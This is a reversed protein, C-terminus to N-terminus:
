LNEIPDRAAADYLPFHHVHARATPNLEVIATVSSRNIYPNTPVSNINLPENGPIRQLNVKLLRQRWTSKPLLVWRPEATNMEHLQSARANFM